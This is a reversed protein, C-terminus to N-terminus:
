LCLVQAHGAHLLVGGDGRGVATHDDHTVSVGSGKDRGTGGFTSRLRHHSQCLAVYETQAHGNRLTVNGQDTQPGDNRDVRLRRSLLKRSCHNPERTINRIRGTGHQGFDVYWIGIQGQRRTHVGVDGEVQLLPVRGQDHRHTRDDLAIL